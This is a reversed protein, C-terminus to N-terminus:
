GRQPGRAGIPLSPAGRGRLGTWSSRSPQDDDRTALLLFSRLGQEASSLPETVVQMTLGREALLGCVRALGGDLDSGELVVQRVRSWQHPRAGLIVDIEAGEVDIKLVDVPRASPL